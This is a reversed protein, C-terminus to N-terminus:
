AHLRHQLNFQLIRRKPQGMNMTRKTAYSRLVDDYSMLMKEFSRQWTQEQGYFFAQKAMEERRQESNLLSEIKIAVDEGDQPKALLGTIGDKIFGSAGGKNACVPPIGSAMAELTVNGFTETTSPFVFMDSSAYATSLKEGGQYGLFIADPMLKELEGRVPGEGALVFAVDNRRSKLIRYTEALTKLDKEWVLRGAFLLAFKGEIGLEKKWTPSQHKPNFADTDVGHPLFELNNMRHSHLEELIPESPVYVRECSNYLNRFYSWSFPELFRVRYYRAYSAFHTHYTAVVPINNKQGYKIAAYGLSCPSNIHIIDPQYDQLVAEIHKQGPLAFRYDNNHLPFEVSPVKYMPVPQEDEPPLSPSFFIHNIEKEKLYGSLRFLVRTVGDQGPKM